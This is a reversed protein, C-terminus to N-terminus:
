GTPLLLFSCRCVFKTAAVVADDFECARKCGAVNCVDNGGGGADGAWVEITEFRTCRGGGGGGVALDEVPMTSMSLLCLFARRLSIWFFSSLHSLFCSLNTIKNDSISFFLGSPLFMLKLFIRSGKRIYLLRSVKKIKINKM